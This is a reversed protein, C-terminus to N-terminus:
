EVLFTDSTNCTYDGFACQLGQPLATGAVGVAAGFYIQAVGASLWGTAPDIANAPTINAFLHENEGAALDGGIEPTECIAKPPCLIPSDTMPTQVDGGTFVFHIGGAGDIEELEISMDTHGSIMNFAAPNTINVATCATVGAGDVTDQQSTNGITQGGVTGGGVPGGPTTVPPTTVGPTTEPGVTFPGVQVQGVTVSPVTQSPVTVQPVTVSPLTVTPITVGGSSATPNTEAGAPNPTQCLVSVQGQGTNFLGGNAAIAFAPPTTSAAMVATAVGTVTSLRAAWKRSNSM